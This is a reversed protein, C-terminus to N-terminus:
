RGQGEDLQQLLQGVATELQVDRGRYSEGLPRAVPVDVPRPNMELDGGDNSTIRVFPIRLSSGDLLPVNSTFVIWGATPEGVVKGLGLARYGEAFDEADSLSDQNTLLVTPKGLSRQGLMRRAPASPMDRPTMHIYDRRSLVDLAYANVFGGDNARIDVVVGEKAQNLTDLDQSLQELSESSMDPMHVYGLRGHSAQDVYARREEVWQRYMLEQEEGSGIPQVPVQRAGQGDPQDALTLEVRKGIQHDLLQDLNTRAEMPTGNVATLYVGPQVQQSLAAPGRPLVDTIRLHGSAEYEERDFSLGLRGLTRAAGPGSIGLHSANLEGIMLAILRRLEVPTAAAEVRPAWRERIGSWDVGNMGPDFFNDRLYSWAQQFVQHKEQNFDVMMEASVDLGRSTRSELGAVAIRGADLYYVERGDPSFQAGRKPGSSFTLQQAVPPGQSPDAPYTYLNQTGGVTATLLLTKGDPSITFTDVDLGVPLLKLRQRVQEFDIGVPSPDHAEQADSFLATFQDEQFKPTPETLDIRAVRGPETRQTTGFLLQRGDPTWTLSSADTNPVFSVPRSEGGAGPVVNVNGFSDQGSALYAIWQGDPSWVLPRPLNFPPKGLLADEVVVREQGSELDVACIQRGDRVFALQKGDPSFSPTADQGRSGPLRTEQGTVFDYVRLQGDSTYAVRKSDSAWVPADQLGGPAGVRVARGGESASAAFLKGRVRFVVKKGDPSLALHDFGSTATVFEPQAAVPAGRRAIPVEVAQGSATDLKWVQFDREFVISKGDASINPWLVRGDTFRTVQRAKGSRGMPRVWINEAGNRDSVFYLKDGTPSWMPWTNRAPVNTLKRYTPQDGETRLWLNSQDIHSSGHRWWQNTGGGTMALSSGDPSPAASSESAYRDSSVPMPTGGELSVRYIDNKSGLDRNTTSFYIWKGDRSFGELQDKGDNFTLRRVQGTEFSFTYINGMGTRDSMFALTKGDPSYLPRSDNAPSAILLQAQGGETPVTWIDGGSMFAIEKGDPSLAPEALAPMSPRAPEEACAGSLQVLDVEAPRSRPGRHVRAPAAPVRESSVKSTM